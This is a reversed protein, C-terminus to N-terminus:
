NVMQQCSGHINSSTSMWQREDGDSRHSGQSGRLKEDLRNFSQTEDEAQLGM